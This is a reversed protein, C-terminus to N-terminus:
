RGDVYLSNVARDLLESLEPVPLVPIESSERPLSSKGTRM